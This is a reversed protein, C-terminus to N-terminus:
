SMHCARVSNTDGSMMNVIKGVDAPKANDVPTKGKAGEKMKSFNGKTQIDLDKRAHFKKVPVIGPKATRLVKMGSEAKSAETVVGSMDKRKLAKDYISAM